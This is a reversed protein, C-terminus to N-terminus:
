VVLASGKPVYWTLYEGQLRGAEFMPDQAVLKKLDDLSGVAVPDYVSVGRVDGSGHDQVPGNFVLYGAEAMRSLHALHGAQWAEVEPSSEPTWIPGKKLLVVYLQSFEM